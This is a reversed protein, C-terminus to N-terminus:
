IMTFAQLDEESFDEGFSAPWEFEEFRRVYGELEATFGEAGGLLEACSRLQHLMGRAEEVAKAAGEVTVAGLTADVFSAWFSVVQRDLAEVAECESPRSAFYCARGRFFEYTEYACVTTLMAMTLLTQRGRTAAEFGTACKETAPVAQRTGLAEREWALGAGIQDLRYGLPVAPAKRDYNRSRPFPEICLRGPQVTFLPDCVKLLVKDGAIAVCDAMFAKLVEVAAASGDFYVESVPMEPGALGYGGWDYGRTPGSGLFRGAIIPTRTLAAYLDTGRMEGLSIRGSLFDVFDEPGFM